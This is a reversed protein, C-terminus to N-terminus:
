KGIRSEGIKPSLIVSTLNEGRSDRWLVRKSYGRWSEDFVFKLRCTNSSGAAGANKGSKEVYHGKVTITLSNM